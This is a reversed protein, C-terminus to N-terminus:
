ASSTRKKGRQMSHWCPSALHITYTSGLGLLPSSFATDL